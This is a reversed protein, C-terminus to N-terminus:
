IVTESQSLDLQVDDFAMEVVTGLNHTPEAPEMTVKSTDAARASTGVLFATSM